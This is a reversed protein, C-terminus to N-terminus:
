LKQAVTATILISEPGGLPKARYSVEVEVKLGMALADNCNDSLTRINEHIAAAIEQPTRKEAETM